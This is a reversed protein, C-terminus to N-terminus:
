LPLKMARAIYVAMQDRTVPDQPGYRHDPYGEVVQQASIYEVYDYCWAWENAATVDPFTPAEPGSPVQSCALLAKAVFVAMQGRNVVEGPHYKGDPYGEVVCHAKAYEIYKLAWNGAADGFSPTGTFDPVKEDGGVLARSIYVAMADRTVEAKPKYSGDPYGRVIGADVCALIWDLAWQDAPVDNFLALVLKERMITHTGTPGTTTLTVTYSGPRTYQHSPNRETSTAGDGFDWSWGTPSGASQDTFHVTLPVVGQTPSASFSGSGPTVTIYSPKVLSRSGGANAVTLSVSYTGPNEYAHVPNQNFSIRGDGFDWLWSTPGGTSQDSFQVPARAEVTTQDAVFLAVLQPKV